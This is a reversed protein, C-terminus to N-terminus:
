TKKTFTSIQIKLLDRLNLTQILIVSLFYLFFLFFYSDTSFFNEFASVQSYKSRHHELEFPHFNLNLVKLSLLTKKFSSPFIQALTGFKLLRRKNTRLKGLPADQLLLRELSASNRTPKLSKLMKSKTAEL